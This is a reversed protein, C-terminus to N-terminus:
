GHSRARVPEAFPRGRRRGGAVPLGAAVLHEFHIVMDKLHHRMRVMALRADHAAIAQRIEDHERIEWEGYGPLRELWAGREALLPLYSAVFSELVDNHAARAVGLHFEASLQFAARGAASAARADGVLRELEALDEPTARRAALSAARVEIIERAELLEDTLGRALAASIAEGSFAAPGALPVPSRVFTGQGQRIEVVGLVALGHLAERVSSRGVQMRAMLDTETPLLSGPGLNQERILEIIQEAVHESLRVRRMPRLPM